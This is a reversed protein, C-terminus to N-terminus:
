RLCWRSAIRLTGGCIAALAWQHCSHQPTAVELTHNATGLSVPSFPHTFHLASAATTNVRAQFAIACQGMGVNDAAAAAAAAAAFHVRMNTV